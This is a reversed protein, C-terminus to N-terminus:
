CFVAVLDNPYQRKGTGKKILSDMSYGYLLSFQKYVYAQHGEMVYCAYM